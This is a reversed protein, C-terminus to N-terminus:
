NDQFTIQQVNRFIEYNCEPPNSKAQWIHQREASLHEAAIMVTSIFRQKRDTSFRVVLSKMTKHSNVSLNLSM